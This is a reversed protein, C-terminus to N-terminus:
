EGREVWAGPGACAAGSQATAPAEGSVAKLMAKRMVAVTIKQVVKFDLLRSVAGMLKDSAALRLMPGSFSIMKDMRMVTREDAEDMKNVLDGIMFCTESMVLDIADGTLSLYKDIVGHRYASATVEFVLGQKLAM